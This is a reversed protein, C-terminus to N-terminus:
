LRNLSLVAEREAEQLWYPPVGYHFYLRNEYERTIPESEIYEPAAKIAERTLRTVVKSDTWSVREIWEPSVLVKKGPWWNRTAVEIYRIAWARDDVVFGDVHGIEGDTAEITYGTVAQNSRLHSDASEKQAKEAIAEPPVAVPIVSGLAAPYFEAGWMYPGGWYYPYGFYGLYAAEHQRSVPQQTDIEPSDEVQKKTLALDLRKAEWDRQVVAIPSILVQRSGTDVVFYRIAWSEDDFFFQDVTGIEGDTAQVKLGRLDKGNKLTM